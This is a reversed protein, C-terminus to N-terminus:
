EDSDVCIEASKNELRSFWFKKKKVYFQKSVWCSTQFHFFIHRLMSIEQM